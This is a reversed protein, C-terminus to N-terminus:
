DFYRVNANVLQFYLIDICDPVIWNVGDFQTTHIRSTWKKGVRFLKRFNKNGFQM